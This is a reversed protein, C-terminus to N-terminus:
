TGGQGPDWTRVQSEWRLICRITLVLVERNM